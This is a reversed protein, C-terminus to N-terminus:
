PSVFKFTPTSIERECTVVCSLSLNVYSSLTNTFQSFSIECVYLPSSAILGLMLDKAVKVAPCSVFSVCVKRYLSGICGTEMFYMQTYTLTFQTALTTNRDSPTKEDPVTPVSLGRDILLIHTFFAGVYYFTSLYKRDLSDLVSKM